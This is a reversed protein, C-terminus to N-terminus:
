AVAPLATRLLAAESYVSDRTLYCGQLHRPHKASAFGTRGHLVRQNDFVALDGNELRTALQFRPERLLEAYRRYALYFAACEASALRMPQMSRNNYAVAAIAGTCSLDILPREAYLDAGTGRYRFPVPTRTLLDFADPAVERLHGAIAFGDAFLSDGGDPATVLTHLAQFGPVPERYPNDTHLGLGLDSFALNEPQTVTRVDFLLGYNTEAVRGVLAMAELIAGEICPVERLFGLGDQLLRTLWALRARADTRMAPWSLDAFDRQADLATGDPWRRVRREPRTPHGAAREYLWDLAFSSAGPEDQWAVSLEAGAIAASRVRPDRPLDAVDILRQGSHQDRDEPLNDRLWISAFESSTGDSWKVALSEGQASVGTAVPAKM